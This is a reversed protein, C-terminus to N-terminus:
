RQGLIKSMDTAPVPTALTAPTPTFNVFFSLYHGLLRGKESFGRSAGMRKFHRSGGRYTDLRKLKKM